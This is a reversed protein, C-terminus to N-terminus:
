YEEVTRLRAAECRNERPCYSCWFGPLAAVQEPSECTKVQEGLEAYFGLTTLAWAFSEPQPRFRYARFGFGNKLRTLLHAHVVASRTPLSYTLLQLTWEPRYEARTSTKLDLVEVTPGNTRLRDVFGILPRRIRAEVGYMEAYVEWEGPEIRIPVQSRSGEWGKSAPQMQYFTIADKLTKQDAESLNIPEEKKESPCGMVVATQQDFASGFAAAPGSPTREKLVYQVFWQRPCSILTKLSSFSWHDLENPSM